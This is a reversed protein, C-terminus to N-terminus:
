QAVGQGDARSFNTVTWSNKGKTHVECTIRVINAGEPTVTGKRIKFAQDLQYQQFAGRSTPALNLQVITDTLEKMKGANVLAGVLVTRESMKAAPFDTAKLHKLYEKCDEGQTTTIGDDSYRVFEKAEEGDVGPSVVWQDQFSLLELDVTDGLAKNSQRDMVNGNTVILNRVSDYTVRFANKLGDLPNVLTVPAAVVAGATRAAVATGTSAPTPTPNEAAHQAQAAAIREAPSAKAATTTEVGEDVAEFAPTNTKPASANKNLAM